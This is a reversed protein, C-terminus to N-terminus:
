DLVPASGDVMSDLWVRWRRADVVLDSLVHELLQPSAEAARLSQSLVVTDDEGYLGLTNGRTGSWLNNATLLLRHVAGVHAAPVAGVDVCAIIWDEGEATRLQTLGTARGQVVFERLRPVEAAGLALFRELENVPHENQNM